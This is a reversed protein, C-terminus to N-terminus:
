VDFFAEWLLQVLPEPWVIHIIMDFLMYLIAISSVAMGIALKWSGGYARAYLLPFLFLSLTFGVTVIGLILGLMWLWIEGMRRRKDRDEALAQATPAPMVGAYRLTRLSLTLQLTAMTGALAAFVYVPLAAKPPWARAEYVAFAILAAYLGIIAFDGYPSGKPGESDLDMYIAKDKKRRARVIPTAITLLVVAFIILVGPRLMWEQPEYREVTLWLYNQLQPGLVVAVLLPPRPWGHRKMYIGIVSFIAFVLFDIYSYNANFAATVCLVLTM